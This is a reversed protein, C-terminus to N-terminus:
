FLSSQYHIRIININQHCFWKYYNLNLKKLVMCIEIAPMQMCMQMVLYNCLEMSIYPNNYWLPVFNFVSVLSTYTPEHVHLHWDSSPPRNLQVGFSKLRQSNIQYHKRKLLYFNFLGSQFTLPAHRNSSVVSKTERGYDTSLVLPWNGQM